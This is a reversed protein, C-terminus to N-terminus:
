AVSFVMLPLESRAALNKTVGKKLVTDILNKEERLIAILDADKGIAMAHISNPINTKERTVLTNIKLNSNKVRSKIMKLYGAQKLKKEFNLDRTIHLATIEPKNDDFLASLRKMVEIDFPHFNTGFLIKRIPTYEKGTPHVLIPTQGHNLLQDSTIKLSIFPNNVINNSCLIIIKIHNMEPDNIMKDAKRNNLVRTRVKPSPDMMEKIEQKYDNLANKVSAKSPEVMEAPDIGATKESIAGMAGYDLDRSNLFYVLFLGMGQDLALKAGYMVTDREYKPHNLEVPLLIRNM